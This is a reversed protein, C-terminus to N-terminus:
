EKLYSKLLLILGSGVGLGLVLRVLNADLIPFFHGLGELGLSLWLASILLWWSFRRSVAPWFLGALGFGLYLGLCRACLPLPNGAWNLSRSSNQHCILAWIQKDLPLSLLPLVLAVAPIM